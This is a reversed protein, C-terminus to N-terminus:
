QLLQVLTCLTSLLVVTNQICSTINQTCNLRGYRSVIWRDHPYSQEQFKRPEAARLVRGGYSPHQCLARQWYIAGWVGAGPTKTDAWSKTSIRANRLLQEGAPCLLLIIRDEAKQFNLTALVNARSHVQVLHILILVNSTRTQEYYKTIYEMLNTDIHQCHTRVFYISTRDNLIKRVMWLTVKSSTRHTQINNMGNHLCDGCSDVAVNVKLVRLQM